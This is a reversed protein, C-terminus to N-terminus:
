FSAKWDHSRPMKRQRESLTSEDVEEIIPVLNVGSFDLSDLRGPKNRTPYDSPFAEGDSSVAHFTLIKARITAFKKSSSVTELTGIVTASKAKNLLLKKHQRKDIRLLGVKTGWKFGWIELATTSAQHELATVRIEGTVSGEPGWSDSSSTSSPPPPFTKPLM